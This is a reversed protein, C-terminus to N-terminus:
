STKLEEVLKLIDEETLDDIAKPVQEQTRRSIGSTGVEVKQFTKNSLEWATFPAYNHMHDELAVDSFPIPMSVTLTDYGDASYNVLMTNTPEDVKTIVYTYEIELM